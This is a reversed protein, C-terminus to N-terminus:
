EDDKKKRPSKRKTTAKKKVTKKRAAPKKRARPAARPRPAAPMGPIGALLSAPLGALAAAYRGAGGHNRTYAIVYEPYVQANDFVGYMAGQSACDDVKDSDNSVSDCLRGTSGSNPPRRLGPQGRGCEGLLVRCVLMKLEGTAATGAHRHRVLASHDPMRCYQDSYSAQDAFYACVGMAGTIQSLRFDVNEDLICDIVQPAAGHFLYRERCPNQDPLCIPNEAENLVGPLTDSRWVREEKGSMQERCAAYPTWLHDNICRRISAIDADPLGRSHMRAAVSEYEDSGPNLEVLLKEDLGSDDPLRNGDADRRWYVPRKARSADSSKKELSAVQQALQRKEALLSKLLKAQAGASMEGPDDLFQVEFDQSDAQGPVGGTIQVEDDSEPAPAPPPAVYGEDDSDLIEICEPAEAM